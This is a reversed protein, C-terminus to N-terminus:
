NYEHDLLISVMDTLDASPQKSKSRQDSLLTMHSIRKTSSTGTARNPSGLLVATSATPEKMKMSLSAIDDQLSRLQDEFVERRSKGSNNSLKM